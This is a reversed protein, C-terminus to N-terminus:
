PARWGQITLAFLILGALVAAGVAAASFKGFTTFKDDLWEKLAEKLATKVQNDTLNPNDAM